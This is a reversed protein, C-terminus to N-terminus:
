VRALISPLFDPPLLFQQELVYVPFDPPLKVADKATTILQPALSSLYKLDSPSYFHHDPYPILPISAHGLRDLSRRFSAPNGLGCFALAPSPALTPLAERSEPCFLPRQPLLSRLGLPDVNRGLRTLVFAHARDLASFPERLLGAPPCAWGPFPRLTDIVVIDYDRHLRRHQFGDDLLLIDAPYQDLLALGARYRDSGIAVPFGARLFLQAEDGTAAASHSSGPLCILDSHSRRGFGRTLIAVRKGAATMAAALALTLPTKGTGGMSLNGISVVPLPLRRPSVPRRSVWVWPASLPRLLPYLPFLHHPVGRGLEPLLQECLRTSVGRLSLALERGRAAMESEGLAQKVASALLEPQAVVKLARRALFLEFIAAFNRMNPGTLIPKGFCAPELINHGQTQNFTGGMFVVSSLEFLPALEGISDLLLLDGSEAGTLQSRRRFRLGRRAIKEAVIEFREPKRPAILLRVRGELQAYADLILDDEDLDGPDVPGTTSAAIWLPRAQQGSLYALLEPPIPKSTPDFDFKLNGAYVIPGSYGLARFRQGDAESQAALFDVLPLFPRFLWALRQYSPWARDSIRANVQAWRAGSRRAELLRIPWLETEFNIILAPALRRLVRRVAFTFDVPAFFIGDVCPALRSQALDRGALTTTSVFIPTDPLAARLKQILSLASLVEGVSVAHLWIGGPKTSPISPPLWGLREQFGRLYEKQRLCRLAAYLLLLPLLLAGLIRLLSCTLKLRLSHNTIGLIATLPHAIPSLWNLAGAAALM